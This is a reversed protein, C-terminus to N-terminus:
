FRRKLFKQRIISFTLVTFTLVIAISSAYGMRNTGIHSFSQFYMYTTLVESYHAPGGQTLVYVLDFVRFGGIINLTVALLITQSLLPLVIKHVVQLWNAGDIRAAEILQDDISQLGAYYIVMNYGSWQWINVFAICWIPTVPNGLWNLRWNSLGLIQLFQNLLGESLLIKRWVLGVIVSSLV